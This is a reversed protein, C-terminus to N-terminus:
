DSLTEGVFLSTLSLIPIEKSELSSPRLWCGENKPSERRFETWRSVKRHNKQRYTLGWRFKLKNNRISGEVASRVSRPFLGFRVSGTGGLVKAREQSVGDVLVTLSGVGSGCLSVAFRLRDLHTCRGEVSMSFPQHSETNRGEKQCM